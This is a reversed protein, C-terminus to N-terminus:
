HNILEEWLKDDVEELNDISIIYISGEKLNRYDKKIKIIYETNDENYESLVIIPIKILVNYKKIKSKKKLIKNENIYIKNFDIVYFNNYEVIDYNKIKRLLNDKISNNIEEIEEKDEIDRIARPIRNTTSHTKNNHIKTINFLEEEIDFDDKNLFNENYIYKRIEKHVVEVVGNSKPHYPSSHIISINNNKCYTHLLNNKFEIGNDVQLIKCKGFNEIYIEIKKLLEYAEKTKLLYGNYWKSFHDIIDLIYKFGTKIKIEDILYWIDAM